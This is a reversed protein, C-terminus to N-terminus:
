SGLEIKRAQLAAIYVDIEAIRADFQGIFFQRDKVSSNLRRGLGIKESMCEYLEEEKLSRENSDVPLTPIETNLVDIRSVVTNYKNQVGSIYETANNVSTLSKSRRIVLLTKEDQASAIMEDCIASSSLHAFNYNM